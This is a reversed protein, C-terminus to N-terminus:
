DSGDGCSRVFDSVLQVRNFGSYNKVFESTLYLHLIKVAVPRGRYEGRSVTGCGGGYEEGMQSTPCCEIHISDPITKLQRCLKGLINLFKPQDKFSIDGTELM